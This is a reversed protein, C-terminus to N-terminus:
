LFLMGVVNVRAKKAGLDRTTLPERVSIMAGPPSLVGVGFGVGAPWGIFADITM